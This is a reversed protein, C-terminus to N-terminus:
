NRKQYEQIRKDLKTNRNLLPTHGISIRIAEKQGILILKQKARTIGTYLLNKQLMIYFSKTYPIIVVPYESGQSKHITSAYSLTIQNMQNGKYTVPKAKDEFKVKIQNNTKDVESIYGIDGNFVMKDYNNKLQMIKDNIRYTNNGYKLEKETPNLVQQIRQNIELTGISNRNKMPSLIQCEINQEKFQKALDVIINQIKNGDDEEIFIFDSNNDQNLEPMLGNNIKHANTIIKSKLAQRHINKLRIIPFINSDIINRLVNGPGVSPLQDIDGVMILKTGVNIAKILNYFLIIDIMSSEDLIIVDAEIPDNENKIFKGTTPDIELLRHITKAELGTTEKMRKAAKGTPAALCIRFKQKELAEIIGKIVTTKGTGPGGTLVMINNNVAVQIANIQPEDYKIKFKKEIKEINTKFEPKNKNKNLKILMEATNNEIKYYLAPYIDNNDNILKKNSIMDQITEIIKSLEAKYKESKYLTNQTKVTLENLPLYLHGENQAAEKLIYNIGAEIRFSSNAKIDISFAIDDAKKFGIGYIDDILKYPNELVKKVANGQYKNYLKQAIGADIGYTQLSIMTERLEVQKQWVKVIEEVKKKGIGPVEKFRTIDNNEIINILEEGFHNIIKDALKPGLGKINGKALYNRIGKINKPTKILASKVSFQKGYKPHATWEGTLLYTSELQPNYIQGIATFTDKYQKEEAKFCLIAYSNEKNYFIIKDLTATISITKNM